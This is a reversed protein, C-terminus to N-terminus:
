CEEKKKVPSLRAEVSKKMANIYMGKTEKPAEGANKKALEMIGKPDFPYICSAKFSSIIVHKKFAMSEATYAIDYFVAELEERSMTTQNLM